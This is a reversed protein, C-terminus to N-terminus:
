NWSSPDFESVSLFREDIRAYGNKWLEANLNKGGCYVVAVTRGYKDTPQGDDVDFYATSGVPCLSATFQTAEEYGAENREPTDVLALRIRKGNIELTDGDIIWTVKGKYEYKQPTFSVDEQSSIHLQSTKDLIKLASIFGLLFFIVCLIVIYKANM